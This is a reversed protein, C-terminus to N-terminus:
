GERGEESGEPDTTSETKSQIQSRLKESEEYLKVAIWTFYLLNTGLIVVGSVFLADKM